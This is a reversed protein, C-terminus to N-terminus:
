VVGPVQFGKETWQDGPLVIRYDSLLNEGWQLAKRLAKTSRQLFEWLLYRDPGHLIDGGQGLLKTLHPSVLTSHLTGLLPLFHRPDEVNSFLESRMQWDSKM